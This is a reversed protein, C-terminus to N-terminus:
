DNEGFFNDLYPFLRAEIASAGDLLKQQSGTPADKADGNPTNQQGEDTENKDGTPTEKDDGNPAEQQDGTLTDQQGKDTESYDGNPTDQQGEDNPIDQQGKDTESHDGTPADQQGEDSPVEAADDNSTDQQSKDTESHDGTPADQQGEDSPTENTDGNSTDQQDEDTELHDGTLTDQQCENADGTSVDQRDEDSNFLELASKNLKDLFNKVNKVNTVAQNQEETTNFIKVAEKDISIENLYDDLGLSISITRYFGNAGISMYENPIKRVEAPLLSLYKDLEAFRDNYTKLLSAAKSLDANRHRVDEESLEKNETDDWPACLKDINNYVTEHEARNFVEVNDILIEDVNFAPDVHEKKGDNNTVIQRGTLRRILQDINSTCSLDYLFQANNRSYKYNIKM